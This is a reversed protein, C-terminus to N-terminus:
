VRGEQLALLCVSYEDASIWPRLAELLARARSQTLKQRQTLHVILVGPTMFPRGFVALLRLFQQDDSVIADFPGAHWAASVEREGGSLVEVEPGEALQAAAM